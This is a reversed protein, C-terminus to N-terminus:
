QEQPAPNADNAPQVRNDIVLPSGNRLKLGGSSVVQAGAELGKLIAVQDGRTAGTTVFAQSAVLGQGGAPAPKVLFVLAGYPNYTIATQPLTLNQQQTGVDMSVRTFMGPLLIRGPNAFTAEVQINRTSNDVRPNVASVKGKFSRDPFADVTLTVAQGQRLQAADKQPLFFDVYVSDLQQLTVVVAGPNLYSGSSTNVIGVRGSFPAALHKKAVLAAQAEAGARKAKFDGEANDLDAQSITHAALQERSRQCTLEALNAVAQLQRLQALETSDDLAVLPQGQKVDSGAKVPVQAVVGPVEFALDAGRIARVTGVAELAPQWAEMRAAVVSVTQVPEGKGTLARKIMVGKFLNFAVMLGLFLGVALLMLVMRKGTRSPPVPHDKHTTFEM